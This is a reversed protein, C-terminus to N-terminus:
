GNGRPISNRKSRSLNIVRFWEGKRKQFVRNQIGRGIGPYDEIDFIYQYVAIIGPLKLVLFHNTNIGGVGGVGNCDPSIESEAVPAHAHSICEVSALAPVVSQQDDRRM